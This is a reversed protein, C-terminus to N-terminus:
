QAVRWRTVEEGAVIALLRAHAPLALLLDWAGGMAIVYVARRESLSLAAAAHLVRTM